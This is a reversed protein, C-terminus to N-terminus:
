CVVGDGITENIVAVQAVQAESTVDPSKHGPSYKDGCKFCLGNL